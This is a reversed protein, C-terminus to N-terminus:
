IAWPNYPCLRYQWGGGHNARISLGTEVISGAVTGTPRYPLVAGTDGQKAISTDYEAEGAQQHPGGGAM